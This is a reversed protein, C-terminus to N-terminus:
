LDDTCVTEHAVCVVVPPPQDCPEQVCVVPPNYEVDVIGETRDGIYDVWDLPGCPYMVCQYCPTRICDRYAEAAPAATALGALSAALVLRSLARM